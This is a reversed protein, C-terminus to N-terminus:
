GMPQGPAIEDAMALLRKEREQQMRVAKAAALQGVLQDTVHRQWELERVVTEALAQLILEDSIQRIIRVEAELALQRELPMPQIEM